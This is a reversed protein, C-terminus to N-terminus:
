GEVEIFAVVAVLDCAARPQYLPHAGRAGAWPPAGAELASHFPLFLRTWGALEGDLLLTVVFPVVLGLAPVAPLV